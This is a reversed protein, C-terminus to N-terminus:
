TRYQSALNATKDILLLNKCERKTRLSSVSGTLNGKNKKKLFVIGGGARQTRPRSPRPAPCPPPLTDDIEGFLDNDNDVNADIADTLMSDSFSATTSVFCGPRYLSFSQVSDEDKEINDM